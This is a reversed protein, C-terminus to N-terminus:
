SPAEVTTSHLAGANSCRGVCWGTAAFKSVEFDLASRLAPLHVCRTDFMADMVSGLVAAEQGELRLLAGALWTGGGDADLGRGPSDGLLDALTTYISGMEHHMLLRNSLLQYLTAAVDARHCAAEVLPSAALPAHRPTDAAAGSGAEAAPAPPPIKKSGGAAKKSGEGARAAVHGAALIGACEAVNQFPALPAPHGLTLHPLLVVGPFSLASGQIASGVVRAMM